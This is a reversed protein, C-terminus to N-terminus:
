TEATRGICEPQEIVSKGSHCYSNSVLIGIQSLINSIDAANANRCYDDHILIKINNDEFTKSAIIYM